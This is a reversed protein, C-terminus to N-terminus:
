INTNLVTKVGGTMQDIVKSMVDIHQSIMYMRAQLTLLESPRLDRDSNMMKVVDGYMNEARKAFDKLGSADPAKTIGQMMDKMMGMRGGLMEFQPFMDSKSTPGVQPIQQSKFQLEAQIRALDPNSLSEQTKQMSAESVPTPQEVKKLTEEFSTKPQTQEAQKEPGQQLATQTVNSIVQNM